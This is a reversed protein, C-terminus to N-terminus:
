GPRRGIIVSSESRQRWDDIREYLCRSRNQDGNSQATTKSDNKGTFLFGLLVFLVIVAIGVFIAATIVEKSRLVVIKTNSM